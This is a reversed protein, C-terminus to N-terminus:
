KSMVRRAKNVLSGVGRRTKEVIKHKKDMERIQDQACLVTDGTSQAIRGAKTDQTALTAVTIGSVVAILPGAIILGATCGAIAAGGVISAKKHVKRTPEKPLLGYEEETEQHNSDFDYDFTQDKNQNSEWLPASM